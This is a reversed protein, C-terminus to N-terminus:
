IENVKATGSPGHEDSKAGYIDGEIEIWTQTLKQFRANFM